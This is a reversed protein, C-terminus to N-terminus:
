HHQKQNVYGLGKMKEIGSIGPQTMHFPDMIIDLQEATLLKDELILARVSSGTKIAKKAIEAAKSYGVYPTIATIVGVSNEVM